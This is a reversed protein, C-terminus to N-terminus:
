NNDVFQQRYKQAEEHYGGKEYYKIATELDDMKICAMAAKDWKELFQWLQATEEWKEQYECVTALKEWNSVKRWCEEAKEWEQAKEYCAGAREIENVLLWAKGAEAWKQQYECILAVKEWKWVKRWCEEAKEWEKVKEYCQAAKEGKNAQLYASAAKEWEQLQECAHGYKEWNHSQQWYKAAREWDQCNEYCLAAKEIQNTKLWDYAAKQWTGQQKCANEVKDWNELKTWCDEAFRWHKGEEYCLAAKEIEGLNQWCHGAKEWEGLKEWIQASELWKEQKELMKATRDSRQLERWCKEALQWYQGEEYCLGAKEMEKVKEWAIGAKQWEGLNEWSEAAEQWKEQKECALIIRTWNKAALWCKEAKEWAECQEHCLAELEHPNTKSWAQAAEAWKDQQQLCIAVFGWYGLEKWLNEAKRWQSAKQYCFAAKETETIKLWTKAALEWNEEQEYSLALEEWNGLEEWCKQAATWKEAKQWCYAAKQVNGGKQWCNGAKEWQQTEEWIIAVRDWKNLKTWMKIASTAQDHERYYKDALEYYKNAQTTLNKAQCEDGALEWNHEKELCRLKGDFDNAKEYCFQALKYDNEQEFYLGRKQWEEPSLVGWKALWLKKDVENWCNIAEDFIGLKSWIDGAKGWNGQEEELLAEVKAAGEIDNYKQYIQSVIQYAKDTSKELYKQTIIGMEKESYENEFFAELETEYGIDILHNINSDNWVEDIFEDYFYLKKQTINACTYIQNYKINNLTRDDIGQNYEAIKTFMKWVLVQKFELNEIETFLIIRQSDNPFLNSLQSKEKEDFVVISGDISFNNKDMLFEPNIDSVILPKCDGKLWSFHHINKGSLSAVKVGLEAINNCYTFNHTLERPEILERIQKWSSLKRYSEVLIKKIRNWILNKNILNIENDSVFFIQPYYNKDDNVKLLKLIFQLQLETLTNVGDVYIAEYEGQYNDPFKMLLYRTLDLEDWYNQSELWDQYKTALGYIYKFDTNAPFVSQNKLALYEELSILSKGSQLLKSSSKILQRIELWLDDVQINYITQQKFFQETFKYLTIQRQSLFKQTFILPYKDILSKTLSLYHYTNISEHFNHQNLFKKAEKVAFKNETLFLIKEEGKKSLIHAQNLASYLALISKGTSKHGTILVPFSPNQTLIKYQEQSVLYVETSEEQQSIYFYFDRDLLTFDEANFLYNENALNNINEEKQNNHTRDVDLTKTPIDISNKITLLNNLQSDKEVFAIIKFINHNQNKKVFVLTELSNNYPISSVIETDEELMLSVQNAMDSKTFIQSFNNLFNTRTQLPLTNLKSWLNFSVSILIDTSTM